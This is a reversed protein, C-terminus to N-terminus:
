VKTCADEIMKSFNFTGYCKHVSNKLNVLFSKHYNKLINHPGAIFCSFENQRMEYDTSHVYKNFNM